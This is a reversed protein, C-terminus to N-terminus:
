VHARGIEMAMRMLFNNKNVRSFEDGHTKLKDFADYLGCLVGVVVALRLFLGLWKKKNNILHKM